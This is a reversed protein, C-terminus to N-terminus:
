DLKKAEELKKAQELLELKKAQQEVSRLALWSSLAAVDITRKAAAVPGKLYIAIEPRANAVGGIGQAGALFLRADLLADTLNFSGGATLEAGPTHVVM